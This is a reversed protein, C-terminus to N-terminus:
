VYTRDNTVERAEAIYVHESTRSYFSGNYICAVSFCPHEDEIVSCPHEDEIVSGTGSQLLDLM